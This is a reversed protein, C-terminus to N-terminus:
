LNVIFISIGIQLIFYQLIVCVYVNFSNGCLMTNKYFIRIRSTRNKRSSLNVNTNKYSFGLLIFLESEILLLNYSFGQRRLDEKAKRRAEEEMMFIYHLDRTVKLTELNMKYLTINETRGRTKTKRWKQTM